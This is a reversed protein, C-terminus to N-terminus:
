KLEDVDVTTNSYRIARKSLQTVVDSTLIKDFSLIVVGQAFLIPNWKKMRIEPDGQADNMQGINRVENRDTGIVLTFHPCKEHYEGGRFDHQVVACASRYLSEAQRM